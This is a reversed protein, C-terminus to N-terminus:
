EKKGFIENELNDFFDVEEVIKLINEMRGITDHIDRKSKAERIALLLNLKIFTFQDKEIRM